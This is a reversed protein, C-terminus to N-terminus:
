ATIKIKPHVLEKVNIGLSDIYTLYTFFYRSKRCIFDSCVNSQVRYVCGFMLFVHQVVRKLVLNYKKLTYQWCCSYEVKYVKIESLTSDIIVQM